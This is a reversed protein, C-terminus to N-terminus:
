SSPSMYWSQFEHLVIFHYTNPRKSGVVRSSRHGCTQRTLIVNSVFCTGFLQNTEVLVFEIFHKTFQIGIVCTGEFLVRTASLIPSQVFNSIRTYFLDIQLITPARGAATGRMPLLSLAASIILTRPGLGGQMRCIWETCWNAASVGKYTGKLCRPVSMVIKRLKTVLKMTREQFKAGSHM